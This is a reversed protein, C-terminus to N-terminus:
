RSACVMRRPRESLSIVSASISAMQSSALRCPIYTGRAPMLFAGAGRSNVSYLVPRPAYPMGKGRSVLFDGLSCQHIARGSIKKHGFLNQFHGASSGCIGFRKKKAQPVEAFAWVNKKRNASSGCIGFRKKKAQPVEAFAWVNKKRNASSGCAMLLRKEIQPVEAPM